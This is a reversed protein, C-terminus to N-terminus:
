DPFKESMRFRVVNESSVVEEDPVILHAHLHNVSAGTKQPDGFRMGVAGYGLNREIRERQLHSRLLDVWEEDSLEEPLTIHRRAIVVRHLETFEYPRMNDIVFWHDSEAVPATQLPFTGYHEPCFPCVGSELIAQYQAQQEAGRAATPNIHGQRSENM